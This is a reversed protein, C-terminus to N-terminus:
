ANDATVVRRFFADAETLDPLPLSKHDPLQARLTDIQQEIWRLVATHPPGAAKETGSNRLYLLESVADQMAAPLFQERLPAFPVPAPAQEQMVWRAALLARVAYLYKKYVPREKTLERRYCAAALGVYRGALREPQMLRRIVARFEAHWPSSRYCIPSDCWEFITLHSHYAMLLAKRLEWGNIDFVENLEWEITDRLPYLSLYRSQPHWYVCRVDYDSDQSAYGWARSGSEVALLLQCDRARCLENLKNRIQQQISNM